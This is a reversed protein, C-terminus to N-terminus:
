IHLLFCSVLIETVTGQMCFLFRNRVRACNNRHAPLWVMCWGHIKIWMPTFSSSGCPGTGPCWRGDGGSQRVVNSHCSRQHGLHVPNACVYTGSLSLSFPCMALARFLLPYGNVDHSCYSTYLMWEGVTANVLLCVLLWPLLETCWDGWQPLALTPSVWWWNWCLHRSFDPCMLNWFAMQSTPVGGGHVVLENNLFTVSVGGWSAVM